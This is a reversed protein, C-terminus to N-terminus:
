KYELMCLTTNHTSLRKYIYTYVEDLVAKDLVVGINLTIECINDDVITYMCVNNVTINM